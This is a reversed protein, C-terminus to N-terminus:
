FADLHSLEIKGEGKYEMSNMSEFRGDMFEERPRCWDRGDSLSRYLVGQKMTAEILFNETIIVYLDGTKKHRWIKSM